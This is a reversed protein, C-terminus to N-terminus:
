DGVLVLYVPPTLLLSSSCWSIASCDSWTDVMMDLLGSQIRAVLGLCSIPGPAKSSDCFCISILFDHGWVM